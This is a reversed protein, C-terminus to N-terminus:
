NNVHYTVWPEGEAAPAPMESDAYHTTEIVALGGNSWMHIVLCVALVAVAALAAILARSRRRKQTRYRGKEAESVSEMLFAATEGPTGAERSLAEGTLEKAPSFKEELEQRLGGLLAQRRTRPLELGREVERCYEQITKECTM